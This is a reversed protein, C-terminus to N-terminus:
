RCLTMEKKRLLYIVSFIVPNNDNQMRLTEELGQGFDQKMKNSDSPMGRDSDIVQLFLLNSRKYTISCLPPSLIYLM